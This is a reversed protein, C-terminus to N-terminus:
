GTRPRRNPTGCSQRRAAEGGRRRAACRQRLFPGLLAVGVAIYIVFHPNAVSHVTVAMDPATVPAAINPALGALLQPTAAGLVASTRSGFGSGPGLGSGPLGGSGSRPGRRQSAHFGCRAELFRLISGGGAAEVDNGSLDVIGLRSGRGGRWRRQMAADRTAGIAGGEGEGAGGEGDGAAAAGGGGAAAARAEIEADLRKQDEELLKRADAHRRRVFVDGQVLWFKHGAAQESGEDRQVKRLAALAERNANRQRDLEVM